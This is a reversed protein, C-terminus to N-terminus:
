NMTSPGREEDRSKEKSSVADQGPNAEEYRFYKVFHYYGAALLAGMIPGFWYIYHYGPFYPAAIAPGFSRAPNMSSGTYPLGAMMGVFLALGIGVPAMFTAYHKEAALMLITFVLLSTLFMEIFVGQAPTTNNSLVTGVVLPGPFMCRVLAAAVIGGLIQAPFLLLGRVGPLNKTIVLGLTVAPNFLGGSIRYFAWVTVLLSFGFALSTLTVQTPTNAVGGGTIAAAQTGAFAFWLFLTTGVFEGIMAIVHNKTRARRSLIDRDPDNNRPLHHHHHHHHHNQSNSPSGTNATTSM